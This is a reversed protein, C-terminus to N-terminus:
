KKAIVKVHKAIVSSPMDALEQEIADKYIIRMNSIANQIFWGGSHYWSLPIEHETEVRSPIKNELDKDWVMRGKPGAMIKEGNLGLIGMGYAIVMARMWAGTGKTYNVGVTYTIQNSSIEDSVHKLDKKLANRWKHPATSTEDIAECMLEILEQEARDLAKRIHPMMDKISPEAKISIKNLKLEFKM